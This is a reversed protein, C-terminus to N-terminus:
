VQGTYAAYGWPTPAAKLPWPISWVIYLLVLAPVFILMATEPRKVIRQQHTFALAFILWCPMQILTLGFYPENWALFTAPQPSLGAIFRVLASATALIASIMFWSITLSRHRQRALHIVIGLDIVFAIAFSLSLPYQALTLMM